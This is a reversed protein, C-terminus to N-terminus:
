HLVRLFSYIHKKIHLAIRAPPDSYTQTLEAHTIKADRNKQTHVAYLVPHFIPLTMSNKQM